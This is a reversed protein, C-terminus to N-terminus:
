KLCITHGSADLASATPDITAGHVGTPTLHAELWEPLLKRIAVSAKLGHQHESQQQTSLQACPAADKPVSRKLSVSLAAKNEEQPDTKIVKKARSLLATLLWISLLLWLQTGLTKVRFAQKGMKDAEFYNPSLPIFIAMRNIPCFASRRCWEGCAGVRDDGTFRSQTHGRPCMQFAWEHRVLIVESLLFLHRYALHQLLAEQSCVQPAHMRLTM